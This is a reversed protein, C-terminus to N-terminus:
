QDWWVPVFIGQTAPINPNTNRESTPVPIRLPVETFGTVPTISPFGTRRYDHYPEMYTFLAIYKQNIIDELTAGNVIGDVFSNDVTGVVKTLSAELAARLADEAGQQDMARMKLEAEMFKAEEFSVIYRTATPSAIYTGINSVSTTNIDDRDTGSYGGSPDTTAYFPLRPDNANQLLDIFFKNLVLYNARQVEFDYYQNTSTSGGDFTIPMDFSADTVQSKTLADLADTLNNGGTESLRLYYRAKLLFAAAKWKEVDGGFILDDAGPLVANASAAQEFNEIAATLLDQISKYVEEQSDFTPSFSGNLADLADSFPVDGWFDTLVALNISMLVQAMGEYYPNEVGYDDIIIKTNTMANTYLVDWSNEYSSEAITYLNMAGFQGDATGTLQQTFISSIRTLTGSYTFFTAVQSTSLLASAPVTTPSNPSDILEEFDEKCSQFTIGLLILTLFIIKKM